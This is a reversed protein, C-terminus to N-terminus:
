ERTIHKDWCKPCITTNERNHREFEEYTFDIFERRSKVSYIKFNKKDSGCLTKSNDCYYNMHLWGLRNGNKDTQYTLVITSRDM